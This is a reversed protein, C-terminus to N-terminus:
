REFDQPPELVADETLLAQAWAGTTDQNRRLQEWGAAQKAKGRAIYKRLKGARSFPLRVAHERVAMM